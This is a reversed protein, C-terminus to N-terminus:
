SQAQIHVHHHGLAQSLLNTRITVQNAAEMQIPQKLGRNPQNLGTSTIMLTAIAIEWQEMFNSPVKNGLSTSM